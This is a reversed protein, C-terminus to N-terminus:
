RGRAPTDLITVKVPCYNAAGASYFEHFWGLSSGVGDEPNFREAERDQNHKRPQGFDRSNGMKKEVLGEGGIPVPRKQSGNHDGQDPGPDMPRGSPQQFPQMMQFFKQPNAAPTALDAMISVPEGQLLIEVRFEGRLRRM